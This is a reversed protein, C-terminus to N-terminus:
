KRLEVAAALARGERGAGRFARESHTKQLEDRGMGDAHLGWRPVNRSDHLHGQGVFGLLETFTSRPPKDVSTLECRRSRHGLPPHTRGMASQSPAGHAQVRPDRPLVLRLGRLRACPERMRTQSSTRGHVPAAGEPRTIEPGEGCGRVKAKQGTFRPPPSAQLLDGGTEVPSM